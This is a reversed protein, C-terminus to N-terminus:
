MDLEAKCRGSLDRRVIPAGETYPDEWLGNIRNRAAAPNSGVDQHSGHPRTVVTGSQGGLYLYIPRCDGMSGAIGTEWWHNGLRGILLGYM